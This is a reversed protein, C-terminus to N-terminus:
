ENKDKDNKFILSVLIFNYITTFPLIMIAILSDSILTVIKLFSILLLGLLMCSLYIVFYLFLRNKYGSYKFVYDKNLYYSAIISIIYVIPYAIVIKVKFVEILLITLLLSTITIFLGVTTFGIFKKLYRNLIKVNTNM